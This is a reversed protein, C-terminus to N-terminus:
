WSLADQADFMNKNRAYDDCDLEVTIGEPREFDSQSINVDKDAYAAKMFYGWIPLAMNTGMGLQLTRFHVSRDEAGVWVGTVLDPTLGIFWGDSQNQTTGTKGAIKISRDFGDYDRTPLDMRLRIATGSTKGQHKNYVGDVVGEMLSLMTYATREDMAEKTEPQTNYISNGNKDEIRLVYIPDIHVGMNAFTANASTIEMLSLDAVGFGLSVVPDMHSKIGLDKALQIIAEPGFQKMVWATVTNISNALGWKLSVMYGYDRGPDHPTYDQQLNFTGAHFTTPVKPIEYCPSYGERIATAYVFPKFTSGVQRKGQKVHDYQFYKYNNGGVWAKVFGTKPDISVLGAQLLGKYYLISDMPTLLTDREGKWTFVKMPVKETRFYTEISDKPVSKWEELCDENECIYGVHGDIKHPEINVRRHCNPCEKGSMIRYRQTRRLATVEIREVEEDSLDNSFPPHTNREVDKAFQAQLEGGLHKKVADEAYAQLRSDITVFVRLGDRYMNYPEGNKKSYKFKGNENKEEFLQGLEGRLIERFYPALGEQHDVTQFDLGLPLTKLSDYSARDLYGNKVMQNLVVNRRKITIEPRKIPNFLAPNKAMGVLMAAQQIKLTDPSSNFYISAASKIGVAQHIWDFKNLYLTLIEEKTYQRELKVSIIWEQFKQFVRQFGNAPRETFLMKALQQTITSAGGKSGLYIAARATGRLDIGSHEYFREDETAVLGEIIYPSLQNYNINTRNELYFRGLVQGDSSIVETALNTKPNALAVTDPLDSNSAFYLMLGLLIFPLLGLVWILFVLKGSVKKKQKPTEEM